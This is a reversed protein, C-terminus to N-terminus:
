MSLFLYIKRTNGETFKELVECVKRDHQRAYFTCTKLSDYGFRKKNGVCPKKLILFFERVIKKFAIM